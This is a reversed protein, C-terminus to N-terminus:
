LLRRCVVAQLVFKAVVQAAWLSLVIKVNKFPLFFQIKHGTFMIHFGTRLTWSYLKPPM